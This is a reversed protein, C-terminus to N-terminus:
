GSTWMDAKGCQGRCCVPHYRHGDAGLCLYVLLWCWQLLLFCVRLSLFLIKATIEWWIDCSIIGYSDVKSLVLILTFFSESSSVKRYNNWANVTLNLRIQLVSNHTKMKQLTFRYETSIISGKTYSQLSFPDCGSKCNSSWGSFFIGSHHRWALSHQSPFRRWWCTEGLTRCAAAPPRALKSTM